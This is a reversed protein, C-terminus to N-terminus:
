FEVLVFESLVVEPSSHLPTLWALASAHEPRDAAYAYFLLNTDISLM